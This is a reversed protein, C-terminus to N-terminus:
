ICAHMNHWKLDGTIYGMRTFLVHVNVFADKCTCACMLSACIVFVFVTAGLYANRTSIESDVALKQSRYAISYMHKQICEKM